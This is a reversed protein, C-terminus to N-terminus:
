FWFAKCSCCRLVKGVTLTMKSISSFHCFRVSIYCQFLWSYPLSHALLIHRWSGSQNHVLLRFNFLFSEFEIEISNRNAVNAPLHKYWCIYFTFYTIISLIEIAIPQWHSTAVAGGGWGGCPWLGEGLACFVHLSLSCVGMVERTVGCPCLSPWGKWIRYPIQITREKKGASLM